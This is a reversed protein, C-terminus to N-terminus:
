LFDPLRYSLGNKAAFEKIAYHIEADNVSGSTWGLIQTIINNGIETRVRDQLENIEIKIRIKKKTPDTKATSVKIITRGRAKAEKMEKAAIFCQDIGDRQKITYLARIQTQTFIGAAAGEKIENPMMLLMFRIQVWGRSTGLYEATQPETLGELKLKEIAQAEQLINLDKRQLNEALNFVRADISSMQERIVTNINDMKNVRHAMHRRFGALLNYTCDTEEMWVADMKCVVIPQILGNRQIDKALDVVDIPTIKGRCNFDQDAFVSDMPVTQAVFDNM